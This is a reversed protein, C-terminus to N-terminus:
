KDTYEFLLRYKTIIEVNFDTPLYMDKGIETIIKLPEQLHGKKVNPEPFIDFIEAREGFVDDSMDLVKEPSPDYGFYLHYKEFETELIYLYIPMYEM